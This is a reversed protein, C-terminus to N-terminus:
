RRPVYLARGVLHGLTVVPCLPAVPLQQPNWPFDTRWSLTSVFNRVTLRLLLALNVPLLTKLLGKLSLPSRKHLYAGQVCPPKASM